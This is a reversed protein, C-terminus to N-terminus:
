GDEFGSVTIMDERQMATVAVEMKVDGERVSAEQERKWQKHCQALRSM